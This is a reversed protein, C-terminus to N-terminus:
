STTGFFPADPMPLLGQNIREIENREEDMFDQFVEGPHYINAANELLAPHENLLQKYITYCSHKLERIQLDRNEFDLIQNYERQSPAPDTAWTWAPTEVGAWSYLAASPLAITSNRVM